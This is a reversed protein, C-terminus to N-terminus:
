HITITRTQRRKRPLVTQRSYPTYTREDLRVDVDVLERDREVHGARVTVTRRARATNMSVDVLYVRNEDLNKAPVTSVTRERLVAIDGESGMGPVEIRRDLTESAM